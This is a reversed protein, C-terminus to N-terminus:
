FQYYLFESTTGLSSIIFAMVVACAIGLVIPRQHFKEKWFQSNPLWLTVAILCLIGIMNEARFRSYELAAFAVGYDTLYSLHPAYSVPLVIGNMGIMGKLINEATEMSPSRFIVWAMMVAILTLSRAIGNSLPINLKKWLHNVVLFIGHCLGWFVFTWGAGHWIGGLVMTLLLNRLKAVEGFRNGGMPIYLYDRLFNSLSIHWRRWFDIISTAQYPSNFNIPLRMNFLLGLGIAMDSYGSFDFYLQLTYSIAGLWAQIFPVQTMQEDFIPSVLMALNDAIAVKKFLGVIFLFWGQAFNSSSWRFTDPSNFQHIMEKHHLIPGAILHPFITVFLGYSILGSTEAKKHYVDVLYAIQTFTFFSIGLPLIIEAFSLDALSLYNLSSIFFNLYKCYFLFSLNVTLGVFLWIRRFGESRYIVNALIFNFCISLCLLPLFRIDWYAYFFLSGLLLTLRAQEHKKLYCCLYFIGLVLPLFIFIFSYSNFLM